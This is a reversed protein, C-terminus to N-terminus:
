VDARGHRSKKLTRAVVWAEVHAAGAQKLVKALADATAGSTMVDDLLAVRKGSFDGESAFADKLNKKRAHWPLDTQPATHRARRCADTVVPVGLREGVHRAIERAQNFGREALRKDSLPVPVILDPRGLGDLAELLLDALLPALALRQGFKLGHILTDAPEIYDLAAV